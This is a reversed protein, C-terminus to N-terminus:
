RCISLLEGVIRGISLKRGGVEMVKYRLEKIKEKIFSVM